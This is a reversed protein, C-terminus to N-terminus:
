QRRLIASLGNASPLLEPHEYQVRKYVSLAMLALLAPPWGKVTHGKRVAQAALAMFHQFDPDNEISM